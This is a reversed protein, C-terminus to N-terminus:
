ALPGLRWAFTTAMRKNPQETPLTIPGDLKGALCAGLPSVLSPQRGTPVHDAQPPCPVAMHHDITAGVLHSLISVRNFLADVVFRPFNVFHAYVVVLGLDILENRTSAALLAAVFPVGLPNCNCDIGLGQEYAPLPVELGWFGLLFAPVDIRTHGNRTANHVVDGNDLCAVQGSYRM